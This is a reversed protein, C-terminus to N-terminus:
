EAFWQFKGEEFDKGIRDRQVVLPKPKYLELKELDFQDGMRGYLQTAVAKFATRTTVRKASRYHGIFAGDYSIIFDQPPSSSKKANKSASTPQAAPKSSARAKPQPEKRRPGKDLFGAETPRQIVVTATAAIAEQEAQSVPAPAAIAQKPLVVTEPSGGEMLVIPQEKAVIPTTTAMSPPAMPEGAGSQKKLGLGKKPKLVVKTPRDIEM